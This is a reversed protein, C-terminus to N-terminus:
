TDEQDRFLSEKHRLKLMMEQSLIIPAVDERVLSSTDPIDEILHFSPLESSDEEQFVDDNASQEEDVEAVDYIGRHDIKQIVMLNKGRACDNLYFVQQAQTALIFPDEKYWESTINMSTLNNDILMRKGKRDTNYRKYHFRFVKRHYIFDLELIELLVSYYIVDGNEDDDWTCVGSCQKKFNDDREKCRFRVGNVICSDWITYYDDAFQSLAYLDDSAKPDGNFKLIAMLKAEKSLKDM